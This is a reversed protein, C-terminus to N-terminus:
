VSFALMRSQSGIMTVSVHWHEAPIIPSLEPVLIAGSLDIAEARTMAGGGKPTEMLIPPIFTILLSEKMRKKNMKTFIPDNKGCAHIRFM